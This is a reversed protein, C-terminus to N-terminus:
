HTEYSLTVTLSINNQGPTVQTPTGATNATDKALAMPMIPRIQQADDEQVDIIKGLHIGSANALGQAKEKAVDVALQRAKNELDKKKTDSFTFNVQNVLNAGNTTLIDLVNNVKEIPQITLEITQTVTYGTITQRGSNFDYNPNVNYDTTKINKDEIGEKKLADMINQEVSNTQNQASAITNASKTIGFSVTASDPASSVQGTGSVQFLNSKTTQVSNIAFPISGIFKTYVFFLVFLPLSIAVTKKILNIM